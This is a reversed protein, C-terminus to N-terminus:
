KLLSKLWNAFGDSSRDSSEYVTRTGNVTAVITPYGEVNYQTALKANTENEECNIMEISVTKDNIKKGNYDNMFRKFGPKTTKCHGCWDVYFMKVSVTDQDKDAFNEISTRKNFISICVILVLIGIIMIVQKNSFPNKLKFKM